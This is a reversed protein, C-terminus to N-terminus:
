ARLAAVRTGDVDQLVTAAAKLRAFTRYPQIDRASALTNAMGIQIRGKRSQLFSPKKLTIEDEKTNTLSYLFLITSFCLLFLFIMDIRITESSIILESTFSLYSLATPIFVIISIALLIIIPFKLIAIPKEKKQSMFFVVNLATLVLILIFYFLNFESTNLFDLM